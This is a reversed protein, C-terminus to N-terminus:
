LRPRIAPVEANRITAVVNNTDIGGLVFNTGLPSVPSLEVADFRAAVSFAVRDFSNLIRADINSPACLPTSGRKVLRAENVSRARARYVSLMLSQLDSAPLEHSLVDALGAFGTKTEIRRLIEFAM